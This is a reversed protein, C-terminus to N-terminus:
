LDGRKGVIFVDGQKETIFLRLSVYLYMYCFFSTGMLWRFFLMPLDEYTIKQRRKVRTIIRKEKRPAKRASSMHAFFSGVSERLAAKPDNRPNMSPVPMLVMAAQRIM